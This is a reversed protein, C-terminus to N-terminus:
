TKSPNQNNNKEKKLNEDPDSQLPLPLLKHYNTILAVLSLKETIKKSREKKESKQKTLPLTLFIM